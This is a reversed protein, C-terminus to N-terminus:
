CELLRTICCCALAGVVAAGLTCMAHMPLDFSKADTFMLLFAGAVGGVFVLVSAIIVIMLALAAFMRAGAELEDNVMEAGM